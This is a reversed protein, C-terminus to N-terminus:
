IWYIESIWVCFILYQLSLYTTQFQFYKCFHLFISTWFLWNEYFFKTLFNILNQCNFKEWKDRILTLDPVRALHLPPPPHGGGRCWFLMTVQGFQDFKIEFTPKCWISILLILSFTGSFSCSKCWLKKSWKLPFIWLASLKPSLHRWQTM